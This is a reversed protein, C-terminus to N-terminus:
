KELEKIKEIREEHRGGAYETELFLTVAKKAEDATLFRAGLSLINANNHERALKVIEFSGGNFVAAMVGKIKNACIAEGQGTGGMIIGLSGKDQSVKRACPIIYDPFDDGDKMEYAGCDEVEVGKIGLYQILQKKLYFGAHDSALYVNM